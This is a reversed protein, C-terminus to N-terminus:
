GEEIVDAWVEGQEDTLSAADALLKRQLEIRHEAEALDLRLQRATVELEHIRKRREGEIREVYFLYMFQLGSVGVLALCLCILAYLLM